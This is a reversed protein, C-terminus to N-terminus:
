LYAVDVVLNVRVAAASQETANISVLHLDKITKIRRQNLLERIFLQAQSFSGDIQANVSFTEATKGNTKLNIKAISIKSMSVGTKAAVDQMSILVRQTNPGAPLAEDLLQVRDRILELKSQTNILENLNKEYVADVVLLDKKQRDLSFAIGLVPKIVFWAFFSSIFFFLIAYSYDKVKTDQTLKLILEKTNM